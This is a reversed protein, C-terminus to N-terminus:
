INLLHQVKPTSCIGSYYIHGHGYIVRRLLSGGEIQGLYQISQAILRTAADQKTQRGLVEAAGRKLVKTRFRSQSVMECPELVRPQNLDGLASSPADQRKPPPFDFRTKWAYQLGDQFVGCVRLLEIEVPCLYVWM